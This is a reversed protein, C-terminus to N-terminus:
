PQATKNLFEMSKGECNDSRATMVHVRIDIMKKSLENLKMCEWGNAGVVLYRCCKELQGIKCVNYIHDKM